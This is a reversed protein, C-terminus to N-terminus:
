AHPGPALDLSHSVFVAKGMKRDFEVLLGKGKMVEHPELHTMEILTGQIEAGFRAGVLTFLFSEWCTLHVGLGFCRCQRRCFRPAYLYRTCRSIWAYSWAM